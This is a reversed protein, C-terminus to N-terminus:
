RGAHVDLRRWLRRVEAASRQGMAGLVCIATCRSCCNTEVTSKTVNEFDRIQRTHTTLSPRVVALFSIDRPAPPM